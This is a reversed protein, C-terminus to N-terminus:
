QKETEIISIPQDNVKDNKLVMPQNSGNLATNNGLFGLFLNGLLFLLPKHSGEIRTHVM